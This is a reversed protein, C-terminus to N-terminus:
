GLPVGFIPAIPVPNAYERIETILDDADFSFRFVYRNRYSDGNAAVILDGKAEVFVIRGDHTVNVERDIVHVQSFNSFITGTYGVVEDKGQYYFWPELAGSPSLPIVEQVDDHILRAVADIDHEALATFYSDVLRTTTTTRADSM